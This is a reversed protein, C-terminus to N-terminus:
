KETLNEWPFRTNLEKATTVCNKWAATPEKRKRGFTKRLMKNEVVRLRHEERLM